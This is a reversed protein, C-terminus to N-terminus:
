RKEKLLEEQKKVFRFATNHGQSKLKNNKVAVELLGALNKQPSAPLKIYPISTGVLSITQNEHGILEFNQDESPSVLEVVLDIQTEPRVYKRGFIALIDIIGIGRIQLHYPFHQHAKGVLQDQHLDKYLEIGDDCIFQHQRSILDLTCESKGVGSKGLLLVGHDHVRVLTGHIYSSLEM